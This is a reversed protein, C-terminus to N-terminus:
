VRHCIKACTNLIYLLSPIKGAILAAYALTIKQSTIMKNKKKSSEENGEGGSDGSGSSGKGGDGSNGSNGGDDGDGGGGGGSGEELQEASSSPVSESLQSAVELRENLLPSYSSSSSSSSSSSDGDFSGVSFTYSSSSYDDTSAFREPDANFDSSASALVRPLLPRSLL